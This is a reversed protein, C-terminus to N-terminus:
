YKLQFTIFSYFLRMELGKGLVQTTFCLIFSSASDLWSRSSNSIRRRRTHVIILLHPALLFISPSFKTPSLPLFSFVVRRRSHRKPVSFPSPSDIYFPAIILIAPFLFSSFFFLLFHSLLRSFIFDPTCCVIYIAIKIPFTHLFNYFHLTKM